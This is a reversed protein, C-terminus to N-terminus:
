SGEPADACWLIDALRVDVGRDFSYGKYREGDVPMFNVEFVGSLHVFRGQLQARRFRFVSGGQVMLAYDFEDHCAKLLSEPYNGACSPCVHALEAWGPGQEPEESRAQMVGCAECNWCMLQPM